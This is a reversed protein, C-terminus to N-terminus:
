FPYIAGLPSCLKFGVVEACPHHTPGLLACAITPTANYCVGSSIPLRSPLMTINCSATTCVLAAASALASADLPTGLPCYPQRCVGPHWWRTSCSPWIIREADIKSSRLHQMSALSHSSLDGCPRLLCSHNCCLVLCGMSGTLRRCRYSAQSGYLFM